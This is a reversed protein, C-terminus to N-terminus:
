KEDSVQGMQLRIERKKRKLYDKAAHTHGVRGAHLVCREEDEELVEGGYYEAGEEKEKGGQDDIEFDDFEIAHKAGEVSDAYNAGEQNSKARSSRGAKAPNRDSAQESHIVM